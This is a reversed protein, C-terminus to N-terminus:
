MIQTIEKQIEEINGKFEKNKLTLCVSTLEQYASEIEQNILQAKLLVMETANKFAKTHEELKKINRTYQNSNYHNKQGANLTAIKATYHDFPLRLQDREQRKVDLEKLMAKYQISKNKSEKLKLDIEILNYELSEVQTEVPAFLAAKQRGPGPAEAKSKNFSEKMKNIMEKHESHEFSYNQIDVHM